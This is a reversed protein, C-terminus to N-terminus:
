VQGESVALYAAGYLGAEDRLEGKRIDLKRGPFSMLRSRVETLLSDIFFEWANALGGGLVVVEPDILHAYNVIAIGLIRGYERWLYRALGDGRVAYEYILKPTLEMDSSLLTHGEWKPIQRSAFTIFYDRGLFSEVCGRNGCRCFPGDMSITIHGVEGAAFNAGKLLRGDVIIGGGIGTGLTLVVLNKSGQGSGWRWEGLAYLNADNGVYTPLGTKDSLISALSVEDWGPLNPPFRVIGNEMDVMGPAGVGIALTDDLRLREVAKRINEVVTEPGNEAETPLKVFEEIEGDRCRGAKIFTGGLDVGIVTGMACLHYLSETDTEVKESGAIAPM